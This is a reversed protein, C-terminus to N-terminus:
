KEADTAVLRFGIQSSQFDEPDPLLASPDSAIWIIACTDLLLPRAM